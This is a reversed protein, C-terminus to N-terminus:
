FQEPFLNFMSSSAQFIRCTVIYKVSARFWPYFIAYILPNVSSNIYILWNLVIWVMSVSTLNEVSLSHLYYPIWCFLYVFIVIGLTKVAKNKVSKVGRGHANDYELVHISKVQYRVVKFIRLYLFMMASCPGVFSIFLDAMSASQSQVVVCKGVCKSFLDPDLLHGNFVYFLVNYLIACSWTLVIFLSTKSITIQTSYLLPNYIAIYRDVAIFVLSGASASVSIYNLLPYLSCMTKGLYWCNDILDMINVPMVVLGVLLDAVALSMILLNTPTHLQKFHSISIIVLLNLIVTVVSICSLFLFLFINSNSSRLEKRCSNNNDPFCYEDTLNQQFKTNNM